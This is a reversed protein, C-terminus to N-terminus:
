AGNRRFDDLRLECHRVEWRRDEDWSERARLRCEPNREYMLRQTAEILKQRSESLPLTGEPSASEPFQEEFTMYEVCSNQEDILAQCDALHDYKDRCGTSVIATSALLALTLAIQGPTLTM